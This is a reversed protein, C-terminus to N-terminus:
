KKRYQPVFYGETIKSPMLTKSGRSSGKMIERSDMKRGECGESNQLSDIAGIIIADFRILSSLSIEQRIVCGYKMFKRIARRAVESSFFSDTCIAPSEDYIGLISDSSCVEDFGALRETFTNRIGDAHTKYLNQYAERQEQMCVDELTEDFDKSKTM